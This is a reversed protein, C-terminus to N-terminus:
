FVLKIQVAAQGGSRVTDAVPSPHPPIEQDAFSAGTNRNVCSYTITYKTGNVARIAFSVFLFDGTQMTFDMTVTKSGVKTSGFFTEGAGNVQITSRFRVPIAVAATAPLFNLNDSARELNTDFLTEADSVATFDNMALSHEKAGTLMLAKYWNFIKPKSGAQITKSIFVWAEHSSGNEDTVNMLRGSYGQEAKKLEKLENSKISFLMGAAYKGPAPEINAQAGKARSKKNFVLKYDQLRAKMLAKASPVSKQLRGSLLNPGYAFYLLSHKDM